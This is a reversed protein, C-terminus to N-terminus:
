IQLMSVVTDHHEVQSWGQCSCNQTLHTCKVHEPYHCRNIMAEKGAEVEFLRPPPAQRPVLSNKGINHVHIHMKRGGIKSYYMIIRARIITGRACAYCTCMRIALVRRRATSYQQSLRHVAIIYMSTIIEVTAELKCDPIYWRMNQACFIM